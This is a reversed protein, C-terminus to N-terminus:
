TRPRVAPRPPRSVFAFSAFSAFSFTQFTPNMEARRSGNGAILGQPHLGLHFVQLNREREERVRRTRRPRNGCEVDWTFRSSVNTTRCRNWRGKPSSPDKM